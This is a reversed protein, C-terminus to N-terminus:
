KKWPPITQIPLRKLNKYYHQLDSKIDLPLNNYKKKYLRKITQSIESWSDFSNYSEQIYSKIIDSIFLDKPIIDRDSIYESIKWEKNKNRGLDKWLQTLVRREEQSILYWSDYYLKKIKSLELGSRILKEIEKYAEKPNLSNLSLRALQNNKKKKVGQTQNLLSSKKDYEIIYKTEIDHIVKRDNTSIEEIIILEPRIQQNLLQRIWVCLLRRSGLTAEEIHEDLRLSPPNLITRGIYVIHKKNPHKIGYIFAM